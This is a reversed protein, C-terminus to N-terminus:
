AAQLLSGKGKAETLSGVEELSKRLPISAITSVITGPISWLTASGIASAVRGTGQYKDTNSKVAMNEAIYVGENRM